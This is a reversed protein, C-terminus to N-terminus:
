GVKEVPPDTALVWRSLTGSIHTEPVLFAIPFMMKASDFKAVVTQIFNNVWYGEVLSMEWNNNDALYTRVLWKTLGEINQEARQRTDSGAELLATAKWVCTLFRAIHPGDYVMVSNPVDLSGHRSGARLVGYAQVIWSAFEDGGMAILGASRPYVPLGNLITDLDASSISRRTSIVGSNESKNAFLMEVVWLLETVLSTMLAQRERNFKGEEIMQIQSGTLHSAAVAALGAILAALLTALVQAFIETTLFLYACYAGVLATPMVLAAGMIWPSRKWAMAYEKRRETLWSLM